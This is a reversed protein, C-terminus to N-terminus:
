AMSFPPFLNSASLGFHSGFVANKLEHLMFTKRVKRKFKFFRTVREGEKPVALRQHLSPQFSFYGAVSQATGRPM